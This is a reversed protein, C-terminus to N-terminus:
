EALDKAIPDQSVPAYASASAGVTSNKGPVLFKKAFVDNV